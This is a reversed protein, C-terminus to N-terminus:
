MGRCFPCDCPGIRAFPCRAFPCKEAPPMAALQGAGMCTPCEGRHGDMYPGVSAVPCPEEDPQSARAIVSAEEVAEAIARAEAATAADVDMARWDEYGVTWRGPVPTGRVYGRGHCTPCRPRM